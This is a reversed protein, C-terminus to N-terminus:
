EDRKLLAVFLCDAKKNMGNIVIQREITLDGTTSIHEIMEENEARFVSCTIYVLYGGPKLHQIAQNVISQQKKVLSQLMEPTFFYAGEPNRAWTGSGSCPVDCLIIDYPAGSRPTRTEAEGDWEFCVPQRYGHEKFRTKLNELKFSRNDSVHLVAVPYKEQLLLSKGGGGACTDWIKQPNCDPFYDATEVSSADQIRYWSPQLMEQLKTSADVRLLGNDLATFAVNYKELTAITRKGFKAHPKIFVANRALLYRAYANTDIGESLAPFHSLLIEPQVEIGQQQLMAIREDLTQKNEIWESDKLANKLLHDSLREAMFVDVCYAQQEADYQKILPAIRYFTFVRETIIKRDKSGLVPHQKFYANIFSTLPLLGDYQEIIASAHRRLVQM